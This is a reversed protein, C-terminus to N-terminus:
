EDYFLEICVCIYIYIYIYVYLHMNIFPITQQLVAVSSSPAVDGSTKYSPPLSPLLAEGWENDVRRAGLTEVANSVQLSESCRRCVFAACRVGNATAQLRESRRRCVFCDAPAQLPEIRGWGLRRGRITLRWSRWRPHTALALLHAVLNGVDQSVARGWRVAASLMKDRLRFSYVSLSFRCVPCGLTHICTLIAAKCDNCLRAMELVHM